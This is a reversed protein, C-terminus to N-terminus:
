FLSVQGKAEALSRHFQGKDDIYLRNLQQLRVTLASINVEFLAAIKYLEPWSMLHYNDGVADILRKPMSLAAAFRNVVREEDPTDRRQNGNIFKPACGMGSFVEVEGRASSRHHSIGSYHNFLKPYDLAAKDIHFEWHGAEHGLTSRELGPKEEFLSKRSENLVILREEPMLGGLIKEAPRESIKDWLVTLGYIQAIVKELPVPPKIFAGYRQEYEALRVNAVQEIEANRIIRM